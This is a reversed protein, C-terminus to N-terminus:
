VYYDAVFERNKILNDLRVWDPEAQWAWFDVMLKRAPSSSGTGKYLICIARNSPWHRENNIFVELVANQFKSDMLKEGLVYCQALLEDNIAEEDQGDSRAHTYTELPVQKTYLWQLYAKFVTPEEDSLDVPRPEEGMWEMKVAVQLF